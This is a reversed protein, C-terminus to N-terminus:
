SSTASMAIGASSFLLAGFEQSPLQGDLRDTGASEVSGYKFQLRLHCGPLRDRGALKAASATAASCPLEGGPRNDPRGRSSYGPYGSISEPRRRM